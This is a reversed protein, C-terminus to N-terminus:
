VAREATDYKGTQRTRGACVPCGCQDKGARSYVVAKWVHGEGCKWWVRKHSGPTVMEPTLGGNLAADWEAALRPCRTALDNFGALVRRGACYPCGASEVARSAVVAQWTHGLACRWWVKKNSYPTVHAPTLTGNRGADWEAALQPFLTRLDNEGPVATRGSCVPCGKGQVRSMVRARWSHGRECRWWVYQQSGALVDCPRLAGNKEADWQAAILPAASALDNEGEHLLRGACCPCGAGDARVRVQSQWSHGNACRWWVKRHSGRSVDAPTLPANKEGDWERLLQQRGQRECFSQLSQRNEM